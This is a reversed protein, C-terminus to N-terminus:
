TEETLFYRRARAGDYPFGRQVADRFGTASQGLARRKSLLANHLNPCDWDFADEPQVFLGSCFVSNYALLALPTPWGGLVRVTLAQAGGTFLPDAAM